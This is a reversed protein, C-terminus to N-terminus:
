RYASFPASAVSIKASPGGAFYLIEMAYDRRESPTLRSLVREDCSLEIDRRFLRLAPIVLPNFWFLSRFLTGALLLINDRNQLHNLEHMIILRLSGESKLSCKQPLIIQPSFIGYLVPTHVAAHYRLPPVSKIDMSKACTQAIDIIRVDDVPLSARLFSALRLNVVLAASLHLLLGAIFVPVIYLNLLPLSSHLIVDSSYLAGAIPPFIGGKLAPLNVLSAGTALAGVGPFAIDTVSFPFLMKLAPLLWLLLRWRAPLGRNGLVSLAILVLLVASGGLTGAILWQVLAEGSM